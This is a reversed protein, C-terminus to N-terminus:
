ICALRVRDEGLFAIEADHVNHRIRPDTDFVHAWSM